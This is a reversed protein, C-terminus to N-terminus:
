TLLADLGSVRLDAEDGIGAESYLTKLIHEPRVVEGSSDLAGTSLNVPTPDMGVASSEGIVQGGRVSGGALFCANLLWHDRGGNQNVLPTRSFESFGMIVTHDLWSESTNKYQSAALDDILKAVLNFGGELIPGHDEQWNTFHTDLSQQNAQFSVCRSLGSKIAMSALAASAEPTNLAGSSAIGYHSRIAEMEPTNAQFDLRDSLDAAVMARASLRSAEATQWMPSRQARDCDKAQALMEEILADEVPSLQTGDRRLARSLDDVSNTRLASAYSPHERNYSETQLAVNPITHESGLKAALWADASSGRAASGAPPKGTLFRRRGTAHTLTEMSMGRIVTMKDAHRALEGICPGFTIGSATTILPTSPIDLLDYRPEVRTLGAAEPTYISPDKPDLGLMIDWGGQFYVFIYYRDLGGQISNESAARALSGLNAGLPIGAAGLGLAALGGRLFHRRNLKM